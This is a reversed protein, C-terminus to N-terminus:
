GDASERAAAAAAALPEGADAARRRPRAPTAPWSTRRARPARRGRARRGRSRARRWRRRRAAAYRADRDAAAAAAADPRASRMARTTARRAVWPLSDLPLRYGMPSDGPILYCREDRLFWPGLALRGATGASTARAGAARLRGVADLGSSCAACARRAGDPRRAAFRVSRRQGAAPARAVPLLLHRRLGAFVNRRDVGLRARWARAPVRKRTAATAGHTTTSTPSCRRTTGSRSATAAGTSTSRGARCSSARIGSARASTCCAAAATSRRAAPADARRAPARKTPGMADTNWEAGDRDDVSVFTPEGGM